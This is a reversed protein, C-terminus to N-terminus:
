SAHSFSWFFTNKVITTCRRIDVTDQRAGATIMQTPTRKLLTMDGYTIHTTCTTCTTRSWLSRQFGCARKRTEFELAYIGLCPAPMAPMEWVDEPVVRPRPHRGVYCPCLLDYCDSAGHYRQCRIFQIHFSWKLRSDPHNPDANAGVIASTAHVKALCVCYLRLFATSVFHCVQALAAGKAIHQGATAVGQTDGGFLVVDDLLM